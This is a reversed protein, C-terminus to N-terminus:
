RALENSRSLRANEKTVMYVLPTDGKSLLAGTPTQKVTLKDGAKLQCKAAAEAPIAIKEKLGKDSAVTVNVQRSKQAISNAVLGTVDLVVVSPVVVIMSSAVVVAVGMLVSHESQGQVSDASALAPTLALLALLAAIHKM